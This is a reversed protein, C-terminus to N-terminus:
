EKGFVINGTGFDKVGYINLNRYDELSLTSKWMRSLVALLRTKEDPELELGAFLAVKDLVTLEVCCFLAGSIYEPGDSGYRAIISRGLSTNCIYFDLEGDGLVKCIGTGLYKCADCDHQYKPMPEGSGLLPSSGGVVQKCFLHEAM